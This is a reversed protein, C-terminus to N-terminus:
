INGSRDEKNENNRDILLLGIAALWGINLIWSTFVDFVNTKNNKPVMGINSFKFKEAGYYFAIDVWNVPMPSPHTAVYSEKELRTIYDSITKKSSEIVANNETPRRWQTRVATCIINNMEFQTYGPKGGGSRSPMKPEVRKIKLYGEEICNSNKGRNPLSFAFM